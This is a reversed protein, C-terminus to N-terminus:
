LKLCRLKKPQVRATFAFTDTREQQEGGAEVNDGANAHVAAAHRHPCCGDKEGMLTKMCM